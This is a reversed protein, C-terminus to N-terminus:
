QTLEGEHPTSIQPDADKADVDSATPRWRFSVPVSLVAFHFPEIDPDTDCDLAVDWDPEAGEGAFVWAYDGMDGDTNSVLWCAGGYPGTLRTFPVSALHDNETEAMTKLVAVTARRRVDVAQPPPAGLEDAAKMESQMMAQFVQEILLMRLLGAEQALKRVGRNTNMLEALGAPDLEPSM